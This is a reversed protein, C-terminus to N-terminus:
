RSCGQSPRRRSAGPRKGLADFNSQTSLLNMGDHPTKRNGISRCDSTRTPQMKTEMGRARENYQSTGSTRILCSLSIKPGWGSHCIILLFILFILGSLYPARRAAENSQSKKHRWSLRHGRGDTGSAVDIPVGLPAARLSLRTSPPGLNPRRPQPQPDAM